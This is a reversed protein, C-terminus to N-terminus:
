YDMVSKLILKAEDSAFDCGLLLRFNAEALARRDGARRKRSPLAVALRALVYREAAIELALVRRRLATIGPDLDAKLARRLQRLPAVVGRDIGEIAAKARKLEAPNLRAGECLGLWLAFLVLDVNHGNRDQLCILADAVGPRTYVMLSFRWLAETTSQDAM